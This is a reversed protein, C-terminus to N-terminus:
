VPVTMLQANEAAYGMQEDAEVESMYQAGLSFAASVQTLIQPFQFAFGFGVINSVMALWTPILVKYDKLCETLYHWEFERALPDSATGSSRNNWIAEKEEASLWKCDDVRNPLIFYLGVALAVTALGLIIFLRFTL